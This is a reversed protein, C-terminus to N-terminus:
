FRMLVPGAIFVEGRVAQEDPSDLLFLTDWRIPYHIVGDNDGGWHSINAGAM